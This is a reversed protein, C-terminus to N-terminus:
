VWGDMWDRRHVKMRLRRSQARAGRLGTFSGASEDVADLPTAM